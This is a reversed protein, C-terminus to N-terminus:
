MNDSYLVDAIEITITMEKVNDNLLGDGVNILQELKTKKPSQYKPTLYYYEYGLWQDDKILEIAQEDTLAPRGLLKRWGTPPGTFNSVFAKRSEERKHLLDALAFEARSVVESTPLTVFGLNSESINYNIISM